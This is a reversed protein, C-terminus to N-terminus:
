YTTCGMLGRRDYRPAELGGAKASRLRAAWAVAGARRKVDHWAPDSVSPQFGGAVVAACKLSADTLHPRVIGATYARAPKTRLRDARRRPGHRRQARSQPAGRWGCRCLARQSASGGMGGCPGRRCIVPDFHPLNRSLLYGPITSFKQHKGPAQLISPATVARQLRFFRYVM